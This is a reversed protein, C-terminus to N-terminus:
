IEEKIYEKTWKWSMFVREGDSQIEEPYDHLKWATEKCDQWVQLINETEKVVKLYIMESFQNQIILISDKENSHFLKMIHDLSIWKWVEESRKVKEDIGTKRIDSKKQCIPCNKVYESIDKRMSNWYALGTVQRFTGKFGPHGARKNDYCRWIIYQQEEPTKIIQQRRYWWIGNSDKELESIEMTLHYGKRKTKKLSM